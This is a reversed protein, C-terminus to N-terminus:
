FRSGYAAPAERLARILDLVKAELFSDQDEIELVPVNWWGGLSHELNGGEHLQWWTQLFTPDIRIFLACKTYADREIWLGYITAAHNADRKQHYRLFGDSAVEAAQFIAVVRSALSQCLRQHEQQPLHRLKEAHERASMLTARVLTPFEETM